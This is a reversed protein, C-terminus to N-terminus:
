SMISAILAMSRANSHGNGSSIEGSRVVPDNFDYGVLTL